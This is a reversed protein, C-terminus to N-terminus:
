KKVEVTKSAAKYDKTEAASVTIQAVGCGKMTVTGNAAVSAQLPRMTIYSRTAPINKRYAKGAEPMRTVGSPIFFTELGTCRNFKGIKTVTEPLSLQQNHYQQQMQM